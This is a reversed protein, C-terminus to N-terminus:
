RRFTYKLSLWGVIAILSHIATDPSITTYMGLNSDLSWIGLIPAKEVVRTCNHLM